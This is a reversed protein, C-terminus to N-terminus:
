MGALMLKKMFTGTRGSPEVSITSPTLRERRYHGPASPDDRARGRSHELHAVVPLAIQKGDRRRVGLWRPSGQKRGQRHTGAARALQGSVCTDTIGESGDVSQRFRDDSL